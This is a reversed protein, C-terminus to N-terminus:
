QDPIDGLGVSIRLKLRDFDSHRAVLPQPPEREAQRPQPQALRQLSRGGLRYRDRREVVAIQDRLFEESAFISAHDQNPRFQSPPPGLM